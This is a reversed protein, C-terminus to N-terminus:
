AVQQWTGGTEVSRFVAELVAVTHLIGDDDIHFAGEGLAARAFSEINMGIHNTPPAEFTVPQGTGQGKPKCTTVRTEGLSTKTLVAHASVRTASAALM